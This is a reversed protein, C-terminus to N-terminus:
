YLIYWMNLPFIFYQGEAALMNRKSLCVKGYKTLPINPMQYPIHPERESTGRMTRRGGVKNGKEGERGREQRREEEKM